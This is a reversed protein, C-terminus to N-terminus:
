DLLGACVALVVANGRGIDKGTLLNKVYEGEQVAVDKNDRLRHIWKGKDIRGIDKGDSLRRIWKGNDIVAYDKGNKQIYKGDLACDIYGSSSSTNGSSNSGSGVADIGANFLGALILAGGLLKEEKSLQNSSNSTSIKKIFIDSGSNDQNRNDSGAIILAGDYARIIKQGTQKKNQVIRRFNSSHKKGNLDAIYGGSSNFASFRNNGIIAFLEQGYYFNSCGAPTFEKFAHIQVEYDHTLYFDFDAKNRNMADHINKSLLNGNRDVICLFAEYKNGEGVICINGKRTLSFSNASEYRSKGYNKNWSINGNKDLKKIWWYKVVKSFAEEPNLRTLTNGLVLFGDDTDSIISILEQGEGDVGLNKEWIQEGKSNIKRIWNTKIVRNESKSVSSSGLMVIDRNSTTTSNYTKDFANNGYERYWEQVGNSNIKLAFANVDQRDNISETYGILVCGNDSTYEICNGIINRGDGFTKSWQTTGTNNIKEVLVNLRGEDYSKTEAIFIVGGDPTACLEHLIENQNGGIIREWNETFTLYDSQSFLNLSQFLILTLLYTKTRKM